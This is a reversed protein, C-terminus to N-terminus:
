LIHSLSALWYSGHFILSYTMIRVLSKQSVIGDYYLKTLLISSPIFSLYLTRYFFTNNQGFILFFVTAMAVLGVLINYIKLVSPAIQDQINNSFIAKTIVIVPSYYFFYQFALQIFGITTFRMFYGDQTSAVYGDIKESIMGEDDAGALMSSNNLVYVTALTAAILFLSILPFLNKRNIKIFLFPILAIAIIMQRHFLFSSLAITIGLPLNIGKAKSAIFIGLFYVAAALTARAYFTRDFYFTFWLLLVFVVNTKQTKACLIVCLTAGGFIIARFLDYNGHVFNAVAQPAIEMNGWIDAIEVRHRYAYYDYTVCYSIAFFTILIFLGCVLVNNDCKYDLYHKKVYRFSVITLIIEFAILFLRISSPVNQPSDIFEFM